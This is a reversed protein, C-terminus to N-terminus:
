GSGELAFNAILPATRGPDEVMPSHDLGDLVVVRAGVERYLATSRRAHRERDGLLVTMPVGTSVLRQHVPRAGWYRDIADQSESFSSWTTREFIDKVLRRPPDFEPAFGHEVVLRVLREDVLTDNAHGIVPWFALRAPLGFGLDRDDPSTGILMVRTVRDRHREAFATAVMGGMSHGVIAARRIGLQTMVRAVLDAQAEMSYGDRPKESGGHGLLDVRVVRLDRALLPTVADFWRMSASFGHILVVPPGDRPGDERVQVDGAPLSLIRGIDRKAPETAREVLVTNVALFVVGAVAVAGASRPFRRILVIAVYLEVVGLSLFKLVAFGAALAPWASGETGGLVVLLSVNELVDFAAAVLALPWVRGLRALTEWHRRRAFDRAARVALAWFAAYMALYLFDLWLSLRAADRGDDGWETLIEDATGADAAVEFGVIGPGGEDWMREDIGALVVFLASGVVFLWILASRRTVGVAPRRGGDRRVPARPLGTLVPVPAARLPPRRAPAVPGRRRHLLRGPGGLGRPLDRRVAGRLVPAPHGRLAARHLAPDAQADRGRGQVVPLMPVGAREYEGKMLLSLAWFHPPTWYFVIAFLYLANWSLSGTTAAWAVLPPVAGAAGGIVINQVTRRKLWVTYVFVYGLYGSASLAAALPNVATALLLVSLVGLVIGYTLAANPSVRGSPVPRDRTRSMTADIDRDFWHNVAGAGGASLSGGLCTFLVTSLAPDGAVYMTTVTTFLLLSQVKPKTLSVYDAVVTRPATRVAEM